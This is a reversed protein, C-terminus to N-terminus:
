NNKKENLTKKQPNSTAGVCFLRQDGCRKVTSYNNISGKGPQHDLDVAVVGVCYSM